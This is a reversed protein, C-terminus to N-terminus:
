VEVDSPELFGRCLLRWAVCEHVIGRKGIPNGKGGCPLMRGIRLLNGGVRWLMSM